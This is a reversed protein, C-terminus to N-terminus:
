NRKTLYASLIYVGVLLMATSIVVTGIIGLTTSDLLLVIRTGGAIIMSSLTYDRYGETFEWAASVAPEQISGFLPLSVAMVVGQSLIIIAASQIFVWLRRQKKGAGFGYLLGVESRKRWVYFFVFILTAAIWGTAALSLVWGLGYRLNTLIIELRSYGQDYFQYYKSSGKSISDIHAKTDKINGNPVTLARLIPVITM